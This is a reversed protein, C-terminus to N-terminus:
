TPPSSPRHRGPPRRRGRRVAGGAAECRDAIQFMRDHKKHGIFGQTGAFVTYDYSAVM